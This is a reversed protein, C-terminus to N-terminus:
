DIIKMYKKTITLHQKYSDTLYCGTITLKNLKELKCIELIDYIDLCRNFRLDLIELEKLLSINYLSGYNLSCNFLILVKLKDLIFIPKFYEKDLNKNFGIDLGM